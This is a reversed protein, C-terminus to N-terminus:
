GEVKELRGLALGAVVGVVTLLVNVWWLSGFFDGPFVLALSGVVFGIIVSMTALRRKSFLWHAVKVLGLAVGVLGLATMLIVPINLSVFANILPKYWGLYILFFSGSVGPVVAGAGFIGGGVLAILPTVEKDLTTQMTAEMVFLVATVALGAGILLWYKLKPRSGLRSDRWLKPVSGALMGMFLSIAQTEAVDLIKSLIVAAFMVGLGGGVAIPLLYRFNGRPDKPFTSVAAIAPEFYGLTAAFAAGSTGPVLFAIGILFGGLLRRGMAKTDDTQKIDTM